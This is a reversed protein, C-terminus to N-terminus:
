SGCSRSTRRTALSPARSVDRELTGTPDPEDDALSVDSHPSWHPFGAALIVTGALSGFRKKEVSTPPHILSASRTSTATLVGVFALPIPAPLAVSM